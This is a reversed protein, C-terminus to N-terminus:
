QWFILALVTGQVDLLVEPHAAVDLLIDARRVTSTVTGRTLREQSSSITYPVFSAITNPATRSSGRVVFPNESLVRTFLKSGLIYDIGLFLPTGVSSTVYLRKSEVIHERPLGSHPSADVRECCPSCIHRLFGMALVLRSIYARDGCFSLFLSLSALHHQMEAPRRTPCWHGRSVEEALNTV